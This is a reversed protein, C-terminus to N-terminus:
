RKGDKGAAERKAAEYRELREQYGRRPDVGKNAEIARRQLDIAEDVHGNVFKALALTDLMYFQLPQGSKKGMSAAAELAMANCQDQWPKETLLTWAFSNLASDDDAMLGILRRGLEQTREAGARCAVLALLCDHLTDSTTGDEALVRKAIAEAQAAYIPADRLGGITRLLELLAGSDDALSEIAARLAAEALERKQAAEATLFIAIQLDADAHGKRQLRRLAALAHLFSEDSQARPLLGERVFRVLESPRAALAALAERMTDTARATDKAHDHWVALKLEWGAARDPAARILADAIVLRAEIEPEGLLAGFEEFAARRRAEWAPLDVGNALDDLVGGLEGPRCVAALHGGRTVIVPPSALEGLVSRWSRAYERDIGVTVELDKWREVLRQTAALSADDDHRGVALLRVGREAHKAVARALRPVASREVVDDAAFFTVVLVKGPEATVPEGRLWRAISVDPATIPAPSQAVAARLLLVVIWTGGRTLV